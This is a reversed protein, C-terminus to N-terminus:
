HITLVNKIRLRAPRRSILSLQSLSQTVSVIYYHPPYNTLSFSHRSCDGRDGTQPRALICHYLICYLLLYYALYLITIHKIVVSAATIAFIYKVLWILKIQRVLCATLRSLNPSIALSLSLSQSLSLSVSLSSFYKWLKEAGGSWDRRVPDNVKVSASFCPATVFFQHSAILM